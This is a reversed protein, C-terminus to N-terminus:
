KQLKVAKLSEISADLDATRIVPKRPKTEKRSNRKLLVENRAQDFTADLSQVARLKEVKSTKSRGKKTKIAQKGKM